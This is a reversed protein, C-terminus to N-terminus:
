QVHRWLKGLRTDRITERSVGFQEALRRDQGRKFPQKRIYIVAQETLRANHHKSGFAASRNELNEARTVWRLNEPRNDDRIRNIHDCDMGLPAPGHFAECVMRAVSMNKSGGRGDAVGVLMYGHKSRKLKRMRGSIHRVEGARNVEYSSM